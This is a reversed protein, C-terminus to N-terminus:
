MLELARARAEDLFAKLLPTMKRRWLAGILVPPFGPLPVARV